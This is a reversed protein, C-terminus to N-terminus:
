VTFDVPEAIIYYKGYNKVLEWEEESFNRWLGCNVYKNHAKAAIDNIPKGEGNADIDASTAAFNRLSELAHEKHQFGRYKTLLEIGDKTKYTVKVTAM